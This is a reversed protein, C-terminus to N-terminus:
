YQNNDLCTTTIFELAAKVKGWDAIHTNCIEEGSEMWDAMSYCEFGIAIRGDGEGQVVIPWPLTGIIQVPTTRFEGGLFRGGRFSGLYFTGGHFSGGHFIGGHFEGGHFSGSYFIGAHFEGGVFVGRHFIGGRFEGGHFYGGYFYGGHFVGGHFDGSYFYGGRLIAPGLFRCNNSPTVSKHVAAERVMRWDDTTTSPFTEIAKDILTM